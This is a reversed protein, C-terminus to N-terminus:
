LVAGRHCPSGAWAHSTRVVFATDGSMTRAMRPSFPSVSKWGTRLGGSIPFYLRKVGYMVRMPQFGMDRPSTRFHRDDGPTRGKARRPRPGCGRVDGDCM